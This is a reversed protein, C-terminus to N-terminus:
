NRWLILSVDYDIIVKNDTAEFIEPSQETHLGGKMFSYKNGYFSITEKFDDKMGFGMKKLRDLFSNLEPTKFKIYKAICNRAEVRKRFFGKKPLKDHTIKKEACYYKKVIEDGIKSDSYNLCPIGFEEQVDLRMQIKDDGKYLPHETNGTTLLYLKYTTLVDNSCYNKTTRVEDETLTEVTHHIPMEEINEMDLQFEILKLSIRRLKNDLHLVKFLDIQRVSLQDERYEPFLEYNADDIVDQAKQYIKGVIEKSSLSTWHEHNRIIYEVVQSDFRLSNYGVFYYEKYREIFSILDPLQNKYESIEFEEWRDEEPIFAVYLFMAKLTEIDIIIVSNNM